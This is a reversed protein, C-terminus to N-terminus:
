HKEYYYKRIKTKYTLSDTTGVLLRWVAVLPSFYAVPTELAGKMFGTMFDRISAKITNVLFRAHSPDNMIVTLVELSKVLLDVWDPM